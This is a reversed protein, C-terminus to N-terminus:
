KVHAEIVGDAFSALADAIIPPLDVYYEIDGSNTVNTKGPKNKRPDWDLLRGALEVSGETQKRRADLGGGEWSAHLVVGLITGILILGLRGLLIYTAIILVTFIGVLKEPTATALFALASDYVAARNVPAIIQADPFRPNGTDSTTLDHNTPDENDSRSKYDDLAENPATSENPSSAGRNVVEAEVTSVAENTM